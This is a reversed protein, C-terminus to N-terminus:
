CQFGQLMAPAEIRVDRGHRQNPKLIRRARKSDALHGREDRPQARYRGTRPTWDFMGDLEIRCDASQKQRLGFFGGCTGRL